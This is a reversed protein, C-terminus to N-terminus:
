SVPNPVPMHPSSSAYHARMRALSQETNCIGAFCTTTMGRTTTTTSADKNNHDAKANKSFVWVDLVPANGRTSSTSSSAAAAQFGLGKYVASVLGEVVNATEVSDNEGRGVIDDYREQLVKLIFSESQGATCYLCDEMSGGPSCKYLRATNSHTGSDRSCGDEEEDDDVDQDFGLLLCTVGLPRAGPTHTLQHQLSVLERAAQAVVTGAEGTVHQHQQATVRLHAATYQADGALGASVMWVGYREDLCHLKPVQSRRSRDTRAAAATADKAADAVVVAVYITDDGDRGLIAAISRGRSSTAQQAYEVQRLRGQPDFTTVSRDYRDNGRGDVVFVKRRRSSSHAAEVGPLVPPVVVVCWWVATVAIILRLQGNKKWKPIWCGLM